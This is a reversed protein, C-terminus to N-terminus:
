RGGGLPGDASSGAIALDLPDDDAWDIVPIHSDRCNAVRAQRHIRALRAGPRTGGTVDPSLVTVAHGYAQLHEALSLPREDLLPSVLYVQADRPLRSLLQQDVGGDAQVAAASPQSESDATPTLGELADAVRVSTEPTARPPVWTDRAMTALGARTGTATLSSVCRTTAYRSLELATLHGPSHAANTVTRDDLVFVVIASQHELFDITTLDGTKALRQWDLRNMPDGRQYERTAYFEVGSGGTTTPVHGAYQVTQTTLPPEDVAKRCQLMTAGKPSCHDTVAVSAALGRTRVTPASFEYSGRRATVTYELTTSTGPSLAIHGRPAGSTVAFSEPVGDVVRLDTLAQEGVNEITLRVTAPQGPIPQDPDFARTVAIAPDPATSLAGFLAFCIPVLAALLYTTEGFLVAFVIATLTVTLMGYWRAVRM